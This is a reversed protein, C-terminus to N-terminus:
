AFKVKLFDDTHINTDLNPTKEMIKPAAPTIILSQSFTADRPNKSPYVATTQSTMM